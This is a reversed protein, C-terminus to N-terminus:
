WFPTLGLPPLGAGDIRVSKAQLWTEAQLEFRLIAGRSADAVFCPDGCGPRCSIGGLAIGYGLAGDRREASALIETTGTEIDL